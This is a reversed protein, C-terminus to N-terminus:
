LRLGEIQLDGVWVAMTKAGRSVPIVCVGACAPLCIPFIRGILLVFCPPYLVYWTSGLDNRCLCQCVLALGPSLNTFVEHGAAAEGYQLCHRRTCLPLFDTYVLM